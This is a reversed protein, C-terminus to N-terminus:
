YLKKQATVEVKLEELPEIVELAKSYLKLQEYILLLYKLVDPSRPSEKLIILFLKKARELFGAKFYTKGLLYM